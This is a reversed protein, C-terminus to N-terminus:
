TCDMSSQAFLHGVQVLFIAIIDTNISTFGAYVIRFSVQRDTGPQLTEAGAAMELIGILCKTRM